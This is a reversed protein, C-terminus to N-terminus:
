VVLCTPGDANPRIWESSAYSLFRGRESDYSIICDGVNMVPVERTRIEHRLRMRESMFCQVVDM